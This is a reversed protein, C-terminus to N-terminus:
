IGFHMGLEMLQVHAVASVGLQHHSFLAQLSVVNIRLVSFSIHNELSAPLITDQCSLVPSNLFPRTVCCSTNRIAAALFVVTHDLQIKGLSIKKAVALCSFSIKLM